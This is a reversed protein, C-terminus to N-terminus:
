WWRMKKEVLLYLLLIFIRLIMSARSSTSSYRKKYNNIKFKNDNALLTSTTDKNKQHYM